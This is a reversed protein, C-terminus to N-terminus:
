AVPLIWGRVALGQNLGQGTANLMSIGVFVASTTPDTVQYVHYHYSQGKDGYLYIAVNSTRLSNLLINVSGASGAALTQQILQGKMDGEITVAAIDNSLGPQYNKLPNFPRAM